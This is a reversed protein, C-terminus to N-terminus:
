RAKSVKNGSGSGNSPYANLKYCQSIVHGNKKCYNCFLAAKKPDYRNKQFQGPQGSQNSQYNSSQGLKFNTSVNFSASDSSFQVATKTLRM